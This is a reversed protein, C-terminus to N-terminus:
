KCFQTKSDYSKKYSNCYTKCVNEWADKGKQEFLNGGVFYRAFEGANNKQLKNTNKETSSYISPLDIYENKVTIQSIGL